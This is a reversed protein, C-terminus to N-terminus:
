EMRAEHAVGKALALNCIDKKGFRVKDACEGKKKCNYIRNTGSELKQDLEGHTCVSLQIEVMPDRCGTLRSGPIAKQRDLDCGRSSM